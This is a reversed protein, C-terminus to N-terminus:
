VNQKAGEEKNRLMFAFRRLVEEDNTKIEIPEGDRGSHEQKDSLGLDRAIINANLLDAAAGAFKQDKIIQEAENMIDLFDKDKKYNYWTDNSIKLYYCLGSLTMARMKPVSVLSAVGQYKVVESAMLPNDDCWQFYAQCEQWLVAPDSFLKNAGHKTRFLWFQNGLRKDGPKAKARKEKPKKAPM